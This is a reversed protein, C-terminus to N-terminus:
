RGAGAKKVLHWLFCLERPVTGWAKGQCCGPFCCVEHRGGQGQSQCFHPQGGFIGSSHWCPQAQRPPVGPATHLYPRGGPGQPFVSGGSPLLPHLSKASRPCSGPHCVHMALWAVCMATLADEEVSPLCIRGQWPSQWPMQVRGCGPLGRYRRQLLWTKLLGTWALERCCRKCLGRWYGKVRHEWAGDARWTGEEM